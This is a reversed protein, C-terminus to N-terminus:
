SILCCCFSPRLNPWCVVNLGGVWVTAEAATQQQEWKTNKKINLAHKHKREVKAVMKSLFLVPQKVKHQPQRPETNRERPSM